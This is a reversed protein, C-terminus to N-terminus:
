EPLTDWIYRFLQLQSRIINRNEIVITTIPPTFDHTVYRQPTIIIDTNIPERMLKTKQNWALDMKLNFRNRETDPLIIRADIRRRARREIFEELWAIENHEVWSDQSGIVFYPDDSKIDRLISEYVTKIGSFGEYYKTQSRAGQLNYLALLEPLVDYFIRKHESIIADFQDPSAAAYKHKIGHLQLEILGRRKLSELNSYVVPRNIGTRRSIQLAGTPGLELAAIYVKSERETLGIKALKEFLASMQLYKNVSNYWEFYAYKLFNSRNRLM